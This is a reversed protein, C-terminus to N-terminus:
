LLALPIFDCAAIKKAPQAPKLKPIPQAEIAYYQM